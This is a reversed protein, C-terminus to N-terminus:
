TAMDDTRLFLYKAVLLSTIVGCMFSYSAIPRPLEQAFLLWSLSWGAVYAWSALFLVIRWARGMVQRGESSERLSPLLFFSRPSTVFYIFAPLVFLASGISFAYFAIGASERRFGDLIIATIFASHAMLSRLVELRRSM